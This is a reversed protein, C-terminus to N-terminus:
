LSKAIGVIHNVLDSAQKFVPNNTVGNHALDELRTALVKFRAGLLVAEAKVDEITELAVAEVKAVAGQVVPHLKAVADKFEQEQAAFPDTQDTM